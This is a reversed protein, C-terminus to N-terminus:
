RENFVGSLCKLRQEICEALQHRIRSLARQTAALTQNVNMAVDEISMARGYRLDLLQRSRKPIVELCKELAEIRESQATTANMRAEYADLIATVVEPSFCTWRGAHRRFILVETAAVGRAWAGFPRGRDYQDFKEWLVLAVSQLVDELDRPNRILTRLFARIDGVNSIFLRLFEANPSV